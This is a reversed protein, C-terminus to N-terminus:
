ILVHSQFKVRITLSTLRLPRQSDILLRNSRELNSIAASLELNQGGLVQDPKANKDYDLFDERVEDNVGGPIQLSTGERSM